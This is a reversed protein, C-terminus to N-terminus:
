ISHDGNLLFPEQIPIMQRHLEADISLLYEKPSADSSTLAVFIRRRLILRLGELLGIRIGEITITALM